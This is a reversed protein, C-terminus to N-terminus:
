AERNHVDVALNALHEPVVRALQQFPGIQLGVDDLLRVSCMENTNTSPLERVINNSSGGGGRGERGRREGGEAWVRM